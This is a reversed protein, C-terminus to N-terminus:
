VAAGAQMDEYITNFVADRGPSADVQKLLGKKRYHGAVPLTQERYQAMRQDLAENTDDSRRSLAAGCAPCPSEGTIHHFSENYVAGCGPCTLRSVMRQRITEEPLDLLYVTDLPLGREDLGADFSEAQGLTRPFGDLLFRSRQDIWQWVVRLALEDPFLLGRATWKEAELGIASGKSKEARLMAGTSAAPIGFAASLLAAQTGKGTAPPGLLVIRNKM